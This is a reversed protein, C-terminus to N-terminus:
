RRMGSSSLDLQRERAQGIQEVVVDRSHQWLKRRRLPSCELDREKQVLRLAAGRVIPRDPRRESAAQSIEGAVPGQADCDVIELPKVPRRQAHELEGASAQFALGNENEGGYPDGGIFHLWDPEDLRESGISDLMQNNRRERDRREILQNAIM